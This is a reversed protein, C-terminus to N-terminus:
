GRKGPPPPPQDGDGNGGNTTVDCFFPIWQCLLDSDSETNDAAVAAFVFLTSVFFVALIARLKKM